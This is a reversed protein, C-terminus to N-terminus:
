RMEEPLVNPGYFGSEGHQRGAAACALCVGGGYVRTHRSWGAGNEDLVGVIEGHMEIERQTPSHGNFEPWAKSTPPAPPLLLSTPPYSSPSAFLDSESASSQRSVPIGIPVTKNYSLRRPHSAIAVAGPPPGLSTTSSSTYDPNPQHILSHESPPRGELTFVTSSLEPPTLPPAPPPRSMLNRSVRGHASNYGYRPGTHLADGSLPPQNSGFSVHHGRLGDGGPSELTRHKEPMIGPPHQHSYQHNQDQEDAPLSRNKELAEQWVLPKRRPNRCASHNGSRARWSRLRRICFRLIVAVAFISLGGQVATWPPPQGRLYNDPGQGNTTTSTAVPM